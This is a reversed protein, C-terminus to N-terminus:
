GCHELPSDYKDAGIAGGWQVCKGAAAASVPGAYYSFAGSDTKRTAGEVQLYASTQSPTGAGTKKMTTVCNQGTAANYSLYATGATGLPASDIVGYGSGCAPAGLQAETVTSWRISADAQFEPGAEYLLGVSTASLSIMDTYSADQGWVLLSNADSTWTGGEDFSSRVRLEKRRDCTSPGAFLLRDYAGGTTTASMELVSGQVRPTTLEPEVVFKQSFTAGGDSSIAFARNHIACADAREDVAVVLADGPVQTRRVLRAVRVRQVRLLDADGLELVAPDVGGRAVVGALVV